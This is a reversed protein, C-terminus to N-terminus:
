YIGFLGIYKIYEAPITGDIINLNNIVRLRSARPAKSEDIELVNGIRSFCFVSAVTYIYIPSFNTDVERQCLASMSWCWSYVHALRMWSTTTTAATTASSTAASTIISASTTVIAGVWRMPAASHVIGIWRSSTPVIRRM